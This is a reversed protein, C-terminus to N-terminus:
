ALSLMTVPEVEFQGLTAGLLRAFEYSTQVKSKSEDQGPHMWAIDIGTRPQAYLGEVSDTTEFVHRLLADPVFEEIRVYMAIKDTERSAAIGRQRADEAISVDTPHPNTGSIKLSYLHQHDLKGTTHGNSTSYITAQVKERGQHYRHGILRDLVWPDIVEFSYEAIQIPYIDHGTDFNVITDRVADNIQEVSASPLKRVLKPYKM